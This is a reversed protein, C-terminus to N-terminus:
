KKHIFRYLLTYIIVCFVLVFFVLVKMGTKEKLLRISNILSYWLLMEMLKLSNQIDYM